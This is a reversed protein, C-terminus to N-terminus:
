PQAVGTPRVIWLGSNMDSVFITLESSTDGNEHGDADRIAVGWVEPVNDPIIGPAQSPAGPPLFQGVLVPDGPNPKNLPRLDLAVVGNSYWSAYSLNGVVENNHISWDGVPAPLAHVNPLGDFKAVQVGTTADFVRMFGWSPRQAELRASGASVMGRATAHDTFLVPIGVAGSDFYQPSTSTSIFDHVV